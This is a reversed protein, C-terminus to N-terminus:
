FLGGQWIGGAILLYFIVYAIAFNKLNESFKNNLVGWIIFIVNVIPISVIIILILWELVNLKNKKFM